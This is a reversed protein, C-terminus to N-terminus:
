FLFGCVSLSYGSQQPTLLGSGRVLTQEQVGWGERTGQFPGCMPSLVQVPPPGLLALVGEQCGGAEAEERCYGALLPPLSM